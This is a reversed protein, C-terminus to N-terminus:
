RGREVDARMWRRMETINKYKKESSKVQWKKGGEGM